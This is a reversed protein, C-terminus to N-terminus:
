WIFIIEYVHVHFPVYFHVLRIYTVLSGANLTKFPKYLHQSNINICVNFNGQHLLEIADLSTSVVDTANWNKVPFFGVPFTSGDYGAFVLQYVRKALSPEPTHGFMSSAESQTDSHMAYGHVKLM